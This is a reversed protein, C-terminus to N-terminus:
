MPGEKCEKPLHKKGGLYGIGQLSEIERGMTEIDETSPPSTVM